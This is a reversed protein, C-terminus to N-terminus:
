CTACKSISFQVMKPHRLYSDTKLIDGLVPAPGADPEPQQAAEARSWLVGYSGHCVSTPERFSPLGQTFYQLLAM